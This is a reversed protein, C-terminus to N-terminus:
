SRTHADDGDSIDASEAVSEKVGKEGAIKVEVSVKTKETLGAEVKVHVLEIGNPFFKDKPPEQSGEGPATGKLQKVAEILLKQAESSAALLTRDAAGDLNNEEQNM